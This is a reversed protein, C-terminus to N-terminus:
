IENKSDQLFHNCSLPTVKKQLSKLIFIPNLEDPIM